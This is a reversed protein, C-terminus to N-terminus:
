FDKYLSVLGNDFLICKTPYIVVSTQNSKKSKNNIIPILYSDTQNNKEFDNDLVSISQYKQIFSVLELSVRRNAQLM